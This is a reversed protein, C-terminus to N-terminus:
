FFEFYAFSVIISQVLVKKEYTCYLFLYKWFYSRKQIANFRKVISLIEYKGSEEIFNVSKNNEYQSITFLDLYKVDDHVSTEDIDDDDDNRAENLTLLSSYIKSFLKEKESIDVTKKNIFACVNKFCSNLANIENSQSIKIKYVILYSLMKLLNDIDAENHSTLFEEIADIHVKLLLLECSKNYKFLLKFVNITLEINTLLSNILFSRIEKDSFLTNNSLNNANLSTKFYDILCNISETSKEKNSTNDSNSDYNITFLFHKLLIEDYVKLKSDVKM